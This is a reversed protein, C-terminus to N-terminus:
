QAAKAEDGADGAPHEQNSREVRSLGPLSPQRPDYRSLGGSDTVYVLTDASEPIPLKTKIVETIFLADDRAKMPKFVLELTVKSPKGTRQAAETAEDIAAAADDFFAGERLHSLLTVFPHGFEPVTGGDGASM